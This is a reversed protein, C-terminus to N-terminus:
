VPGYVVHVRHYHFVRHIGIFHQLNDIVGDYLKTYHISYSTIVDIFQLGKTTSLRFDVRALDRCGLVNYIKKATEMMLRENEPKMKPPCTYEIKGIFDQKVSYDYINHGKKQLFEIEMPRMVTVDDGNGLIGVTFERGEIFEEILLPQTYTEFLTTVLRRLERKNKVTIVEYLM